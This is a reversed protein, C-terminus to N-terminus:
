MTAMGRARALANRGALYNLAQSTCDVQDDHKGRPFVTFEPIYEMEVWVEGDPLYVNGSEIEPECAAARAPKGGEPTVEIIGPVKRKLADVVAPGNAKDEVIKARAM